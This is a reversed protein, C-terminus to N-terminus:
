FQSTEPAPLLQYPEGEDTFFAGSAKCEDATLCDHTASLYKGEKCILASGAGNKSCAKEDEDCAYCTWTAPDAWTGEPCAEARVCTGEVATSRRRRVRRYIVEKTDDPITIVVGNGAIWFLPTGDSMKGCTLAHGAGITTCSTVGNDCPQFTNTSSDPWYGAPGVWPLVCKKTPTLYLQTKASDKACTKAGDADCTLESHDCALCLGLRGYYGDPCDTKCTGDPNLLLQVKNKNKGCSTAGGEGSKVCTAVGADCPEATLTTPDAFFGDPIASAELCSGKFLYKTQCRTATKGADTCEAADPDTCDRCRNKTPADDGWSGFPCKEVCTKGSLFWGDICGTPVTASSCKAFPSPCAACKDADTIYTGSACTTRCEGGNVQLYHGKKRCICSSKDANLVLGSACSPTSRRTLVDVLPETSLRAGQVFAKPDAPYPLPAVVAATHNFATATAISGLGLLLSPLRM